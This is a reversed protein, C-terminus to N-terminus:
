LMEQILTQSQSMPWLPVLFSGILPTGHQMQMQQTERRQTKRRAGANADADPRWIATDFGSESLLSVDLLLPPSPPLSHLSHLSHLSYEYSAHVRKRGGQWVTKREMEGNRRQQIPAERAASLYISKHRSLPAKQHSSPGSPRNAPESDLGTGARALWGALSPTLTRTKM